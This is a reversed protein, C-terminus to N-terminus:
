DSGGGGDGGGADADADTSKSADTKHPIRAASGGDAPVYGGDGGHQASKRDKSKKAMFALVPILAVFVAILAIWVPKM